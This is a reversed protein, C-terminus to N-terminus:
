SKRSSNKSVDHQNKCELSCFASDNHKALFAMNCHRCVRLPKTEDTLAFGFMTQITLLLSYFDWVITPKDDYLKVHYTPAKSGFASVGQRYLDRTFEDVRDKDEYYLFVSVLMFAWDRFQTVLWDYREAYIPLLSMRVAMPDNAFTMALALVRRDNGSVNWQMTTKDEYIDPKMFPFFLSMDDIMRSYVKRINRDTQGRMAAMQQPTWLRVTWYYLIEKQKEDLVAILDYVPLSSTLEQIEHPFDFIVDLFEGGLFQRWWHHELPTPIISSSGFIESEPLLETRKPEAKALRWNEIVDLCDWLITVRDYEALTRAADEIIAVAERRAEKQLMTENEEKIGNAAKKWKELVEDQLGHRRKAEAEHQVLLDGNYYGLRVM